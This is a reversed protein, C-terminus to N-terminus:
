SDLFGIINYGNTVNNSIAQISLRQGAILYYSIIISSSVPASFIDVEEGPLGVAIKVLEGSTDCVLIKSVTIPTSIVLTTYASTSVNTTAYSFINVNSM